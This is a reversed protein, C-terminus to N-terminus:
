GMKEAARGPSGMINYGCDLHLIEGTIGSSHSGLLFAGTNGLEETTINRQLPSVAEYLSLMRDVGAGRGSITRVPGASIANVRAQQLGLDYALYQVTSDLAAKCIGMVNYGPVCKEGGFYTLTLVSAGPNLMERVANTLAILSYVSINMATLFGERSTAVTERKLDEPPAFAIAHILFDLKGLKEATTAAVSAIHADLTVDMPVLFAGQDGFPDILQSVRKQNKPREPDKDPLHTFGCTAGQELVVRAISWAISDENFVGCILGTKGDFQGM